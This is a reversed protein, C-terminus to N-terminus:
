ATKRLSKAAPVTAFGSALPSPASSPCPKLLSCSSMPSLTPTSTAFRLPGPPITVCPHPYPHSPSAQVAVPLIFLRLPKQNSVCINGRGNQTFLPSTTSVARSLSQPACLSLEEYSSPSLAFVLSSLFRSQDAPHVGSSKNLLACPLSVFRSLKRDQ